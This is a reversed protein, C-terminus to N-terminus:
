SKKPQKFWSQDRTKGLKVPQVPTNDTRGVMIERRRCELLEANDKLVDNDMFIAAIDVSNMKDSALKVKVREHSKLTELLSNIHSQQVGKTGVSILSKDVGDWWQRLQEPSYNPNLWKTPLGISEGGETNSQDM